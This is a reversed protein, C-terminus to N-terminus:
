GKMRLVQRCVELTQQATRRWSFGTARELGRERLDQKLKPDLLVFLLTEAIQEVNHPDILVAADGAVEPMSSTNSCIVPTGCAMAELIPLGFGEYLSPYVFVRALNYLAVLDKDSVYSTFVVNKELGLRSVLDYIESVHWKAGGVIVLQMQDIDGRILSFAKILRCLNKRPQLNGVSLLFESKIGYRLKVSNLSKNDTIPKFMPDPAGFVVHVKGALYPYVRLIEKKAHMSLTIVADARRLTMPLLTAFLLRDRPSFFRPYRRFSIDHVAVILSCPVFFPAVYTTHLIDARWKRCIKFLTFSLRAWNGSPYLPLWEIAEDPPESVLNPDIAAAFEAFKVEALGTLLGKAYTENGTENSGIMHADILVRV